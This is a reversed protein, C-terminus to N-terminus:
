PLSNRWSADSTQAPHFRILRETEDCQSSHTVRDSKEIAGYLAKAPRAFVM